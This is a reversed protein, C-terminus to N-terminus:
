NKFKKSKRASAKGTDGQKKAADSQSLARTKRVISTLKRNPDPMFPRANIAAIRAGLEALGAIVSDFQKLDM